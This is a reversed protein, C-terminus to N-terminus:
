MKMKTKAWGFLLSLANLGIFGLVSSQINQPGEGGFQKSMVVMELVSRPACM